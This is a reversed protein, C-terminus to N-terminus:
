SMGGQSLVWWEKKESWAVVERWFKVNVSHYYTERQLFEVNKVNVNQLTNSILMVSHMKVMNNKINGLYIIEM